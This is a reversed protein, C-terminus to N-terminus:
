SVGLTEIWIKSAQKKIHQPIGSRHKSKVIREDITANQHPQYLSKCKEQKVNSVEPVKRFKIKDEKAPDVIHIVSMLASYRNRSM